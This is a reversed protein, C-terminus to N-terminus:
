SLRLARSLALRIEQFKAGGAETSSARLLAQRILLFALCALFTVIAVVTTMQIRKASVPRSAPVATDLVQIVSSERSEDVRAAEYQKSLIEFLTEQYKFNRYKTLYDNPSASGDPAQLGRSAVQKQLARLEAQAARVEPSQDTLVERMANLKIEQAAIAAGLKAITEVTSSPNLKISEVGVGSRKLDQEATLLAGKAALLQREFFVRRQQAESVAMGVMLRRFADVHANALQAADLAAEDTVTVSIIGDQGNVIRVRASLAERADEKDAVHFRAMLNFRELLDYQVRQSKLYSV